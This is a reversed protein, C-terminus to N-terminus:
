NSPLGGRLADLIMRGSAHMVDQEDNSTDLVQHIGVSCVACQWANRAM